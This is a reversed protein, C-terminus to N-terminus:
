KFRLAKALFKFSATFVEATYPQEIFHGGDFNHITKPQRANAQLIEAAAFPNITDARGAAFFVPRPSILRVWYKPDLPDLKAVDADLDPGPSVPGHLLVDTKTLITRWDGGSVFLAAAAIRKDVGTLMTGVLGGMSFGVYGLRKPDCKTRALLFDIGRRMDIVTLRLMSYLDELNAAAERAQQEGGRAGHNRADIAFVGVGRKAFTNITAGNVVDEKKSALGHGESLCPYTRVGRKVKPLVLVAPVEAGEAGKYTVSYVKAKPLDKTLTMTANLPATRDYDFVHEYGAPPQSRLLFPDGVAHESSGGCAALPLALPVAV